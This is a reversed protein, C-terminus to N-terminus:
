NLCLTVIETCVAILANVFLAQNMGVPTFGITFLFLLLLPIFGHYDDHHHYDHYHDDHNSDVPM